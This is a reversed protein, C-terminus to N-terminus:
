VFCARDDHDLQIAMICLTRMGSSIIVMHYLKGASASPSHVSWPNPFM